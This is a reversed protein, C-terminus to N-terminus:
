KNFGLARCQEVAVRLREAGEALEDDLQLLADMSLITELDSANQEIQQRAERALSEMQAGERAARAILATAMGYLRRYREAKARLVALSARAEERELLAMAKIDREEKQTMACRICFGGAPPKRDFIPKV